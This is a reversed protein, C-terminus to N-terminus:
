VPTREQFNKCSRDVAMMYAVLKRAVALTARNKNGKQLEREHVAKLQPNWHPGVKAAEILMKQM